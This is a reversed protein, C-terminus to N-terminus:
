AYSEKRNFFYFKGIDDVSINKRFVNDRNGKRECSLWLNGADPNDCHYFSTVTYINGHKDYLKDGVKCPLIIVGASILESVIDYVQAESLRYEGVCSDGVRIYTKASSVIETLSKRQSKM